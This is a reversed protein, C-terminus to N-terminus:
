WAAEGLCRSASSTSGYSSGPMSLCHTSCLLLAATHKQHGETNGDVVYKAWYDGCSCVGGQFHHYRIPDRIVINRNEMQALLKAFLHCDGCIRLNKRIRITKGKTLSMLGYVIALKESHYLLPDELQEGEVDQLVFNTDPVYGVEKLRQVYHNLQRIIEDIQPHSNDRLIFAHIQKNVEIWSCGPEKRVNNGKMAKRVQAADEWKHTNAYINSLLIYTGADDPDLDLVKKAAYAALDM